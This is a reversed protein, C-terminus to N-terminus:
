LAESTFAEDEATGGQAAEQEDALDIAEIDKAINALRLSLSALDRPPCKPDEVAKAIRDRMAVLLERHSGKAAAETISKPPAKEDEAVARLSPKAAAPM